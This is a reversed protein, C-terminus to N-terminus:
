QLVGNLYVVSSTGHDVDTSPFSREDGPWVIRIVGNGGNAGGAVGGGGGGFQEDRLTADRDTGSGGSGAYGSGGTGASGSGAAGTTGKGYIGTGGGPSGSGFGGGSQGRGGGGGGGGSNSAAATPASSGQFGNDGGTGGTGAYGAAGGGGGGDGGSSDGSGGQGGAGGSYSATASTGGAAGGTGKGSTTGAAAYLITDGNFYTKLPTTGSTNTAVIRLTISSGPTVSINNGYALGGGGGSGRALGDNGSGGAGIVLVSVSEVDDPVTWNVTKNTYNTTITYVAEGPGDGGGGPNFGRASGGGFTALMPAFLIEKQRIVGNKKIYNIM